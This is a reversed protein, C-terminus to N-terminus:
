PLPHACVIIRTVSRHRELWIVRGAAASKGQCDLFVPPAAAIADIAPGILDVSRVPKDKLYEELESRLKADAITHFLAIEGSTQMMITDLYAAVQGLKSVKPLRHVVGTDRSFQSAAAAAMTAGLDGLSDSVVYIVPAKGDQRVGDGRGDQM